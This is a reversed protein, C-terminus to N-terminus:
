RRCATRRTPSRRTRSELAGQLRRVGQDRRGDRRVERDRDRLDSDTFIVVGPRATPSPAHRLSAPPRAVELPDTTINTFIPLTDHPGSKAYAHWGVMVIGQKAADEVRDGARHRRHRRPRDRRAELAIAQSLGSSAAPSRARATSSRPLDLRAGRRSGRRGRRRRPRRRQAPRRLRLRHDQRGAATPGRPRATGRRTRSAVKEVHGQRRRRCRGCGGPRRARALSAGLALATLM